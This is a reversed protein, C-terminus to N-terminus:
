SARRYGPRDAKAAEEGETELAASLDSVLWNWLACGKAIISPEAGAPELWIEDIDIEAPSGPDYGEPPAMYYAGTEPEGPTYSYVVMVPLLPEGHPTDDTSLNTRYTLKM